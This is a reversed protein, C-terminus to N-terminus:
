GSRETSVEKMWRWAERHHYRLVDDEYRHEPGYVCAFRAHCRDECDGTRLRHDICGPVDWGQPHRVVGGPCAALCPREVCSPCPDFGGAPREAELEVDVLVAARLAIWPGYRPHVLVGLLSPSALGAATALDMFSLREETFRFPWAIRHRVGLEELLPVLAEEVTEVTFADIPDGTGGARALARSAFSGGANGIVIVSRVAFGRDVIRLGEAVRADYAERRAVGVLGLGRPALRALAEAVLPSEPM